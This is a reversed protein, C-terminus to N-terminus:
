VAGLDLPLDALIAHDFGPDCLQCHCRGDAMYRVWDRELVRLLNEASEENGEVAAADIEFYTAPTDADVSYGNKQFSAYGLDGLSLFTPGETTGDVRSPVFGNPALLAAIQELEDACWKTAWHEAVESSTEAMGACGGFSLQVYWAPPSDGDREGRVYVRFAIDIYSLISTTASWPSDAARRVYSKFAPILARVNRSPLEILTRNKGLDMERPAGRGLLSALLGRRGLREVDATGRILVASGGM